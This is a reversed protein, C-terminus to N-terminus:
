KGNRKSLSNIFEFGNIGKRKKPERVPEHSSKSAAPVKELIRKLRAEKALDEASTLHEALSWRDTGIRVFRNQTLAVKINSEPCDRIEWVAKRIEAYTLPFLEYSIARGGLLNVHSRKLKRPSSGCLIFRLRKNEILWHIEDLLEPVKQVEDIIIPYQQNEGNIDFAECEQRLLFPASVLRRYVDSLLLDYYIAKPFLTKLLTSKGTQRPGWLFCSETKSLELTLIRKYM